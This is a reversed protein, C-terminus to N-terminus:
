SNGKWAKVQRAKGKRSIGEWAKGQRGMGHREKGIQEPPMFYLGLTM